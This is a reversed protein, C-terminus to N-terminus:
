VAAFYMVKQAQERITAVCRCVRTAVVSRPEIVNLVFGEVRGDSLGVVSVPFWCGQWTGHLPHHHEVGHERVATSRPQRRFVFLESMECQDSRDRALRQGRQREASLVRLRDAVKRVLQGNSDARLVLRIRKQVEDGTRAGHIEPGKEFAM